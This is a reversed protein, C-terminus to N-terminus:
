LREIPPLEGEFREQCGGGDVFVQLPLHEYIRVLDLDSTHIHRGCEEGGNVYYIALCYEM